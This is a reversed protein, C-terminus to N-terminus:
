SSDRLLLWDMLDFVNEFTKFISISYKKRLKEPPLKDKHLNLFKKFYYGKDM